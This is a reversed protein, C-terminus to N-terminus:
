PAIDTIKNLRITTIDAYFYVARVGFRTWAAEAVPSVVSVLIGDAKVVRLSRDKTKGGVTDLEM